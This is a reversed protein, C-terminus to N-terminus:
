LTTISLMNRKVNKWCCVLYVDNLGVTSEVYVLIYCFIGNNYEKTPSRRSYPWLPRFKYSAYRSTGLTQQWQAITPNFATCFFHKRKQRADTQVTRHSHGLICGFSALKGVLLIGCVFFENRFDAFYQRWESFRSSRPAVVKEKCGFERIWGLSVSSSSKQLQFPIQSFLVSSKSSTNSCLCCLPKWNQILFLHVAVQLFFDSQM